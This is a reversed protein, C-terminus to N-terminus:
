EHKRNPIIYMIAFTLVRVCGGILSKLKQLKTILKADLPYVNKAYIKNVNYM